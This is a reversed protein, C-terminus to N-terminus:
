WWEAQHCESTCERLKVKAETVTMPEGEPEDITITCPVRTSFGGYCSIILTDGAWWNARIIEMDKKEIFGKFIM